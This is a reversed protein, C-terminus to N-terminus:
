EARESSAAALRAEIGRYIQAGTERLLAQAQEKAARAENGMPGAPGQALAAAQVIRAHCEALRQAREHALEIAKGAGLLAQETAGSLLNAEALEALIPAESDRAARTARALKLARSLESAAAAFDGRAIGALGACRSAFVRLYPMASAEAIREVEAAHLAALAGDGLSWAIRVYAVHPVFRVLAEVEALAIVRDLHLRAQRFRGLEILIAGRTAVIWPKIRFGMLQEDFAGIHAAKRLAQGNAALARDLRGAFRYAQALVAGLTAKRGPEDLPAILELAQRMTDAYADASGSAAIFRGYGAMVLTETMRDGLRQALSRAATAHELAEQNSIGERWGYNLVQGHAVSRLTDNAPTAPADELLLCARRWHKLAQASDTKGIWYAARATHHGAAVRQGAAEYHYAVLGALENAREGPERELCLATTQHLENRRSVLQASYAVEQILPHRFAFRGPSTPSARRILGADQARALTADIESAAGESVSELVHLAFETGIVSAVQLVRKDADALADIRAGLLSRITAPLPQDLTGPGPRLNGWDGVLVKRECLSQVLEEAFFPNGAARAAVQERISKLRPDPGVLDRVLASNARAGLEHLALRQCHSAKLWADDYGPRYSLLLMTHTRAVASVLWQLFRGSAEDLWQLDEVLVVIPRGRSVSALGAVALALRRQQEDPDLEVRAGAAELGLLQLILGGHAQAAPGLAALLRTTRLRAREPKMGPAIGLLSRLIDLVPHLPTAHGYALARTSLVRIRRARCRAVFEQCLRSKGVGPPGSISLVRGRGMRAADFAKDIVGMEVDRGSLHSALGDARQWPAPAHLGILRFAEVPEDFGKAAHRGAPQCEFARRVLAWTGASLYIEGAPALQEMRSALHLTAGYAGDGAHDPQASVIEGSHLGIRVAPEGPLLRAAQRIALAARAALLAHGELARPAGFLAMVGDGTTRVLTGDFDRVASRMADIVPRLRAMAQEPDLGRILETSGVMDAFLVTAHKREPGAAADPSATSAPAALLAGCHACFHAM